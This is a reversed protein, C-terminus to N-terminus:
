GRREMRSVKGDMEGTLVGEASAHTLAHVLIEGDRLDLSITGPTLTISNAYIVQGLVSRQNAKVRILRPSIAMERSLVIRAVDFNAKVIEMLLWPLYLVQGLGFPYSHNAGAVRLLRRTLSWVVVISALGLSATIGHYHDAGPWSYGGSWLLWAGALMLLLILDRMDSPAYLQRREFFPQYTM